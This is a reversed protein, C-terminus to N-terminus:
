PEDWSLIPRPDIKAALSKPISIKKARIYDAFGKGLIDLNTASSVGRGLIGYVVFHVAYINPFEVREIFYSGEKWDDGILTKLRSRSMYSRFWDWLQPDRVFFGANINAGKDGSRALAIDGLLLESQTEGMSAVSVPYATDYNARKGPKKYTPPHGADVISAQSGYEGLLHAKEQLQDQRMVAPYYALFPRPFATRFDLSCHMGSYHQMGFEMFSTLLQQLTSPESAQALLRFYTTSSLQSRPDSEPVGIHQFELADFQDRVKNKELAHLMQKKWLQFKHGTAYGAANFLLQSEFGGQYFIALKTTPPPPGGKIGWLRVRNLGVEEVQVDHMHATVDSNLYVEGQLEYLFQCKVTDATVLGNSREHKTVVVSGDAEVEAIGFPLDILKDLPVEDFGAFNAGTVYASCEILHGAVLSGALADWDNDAWGHWWWAAGIVPSADAVRGCIIIDGGAELAKVIGRAGLYANASVLAKGPKLLDTVNRALIVDENEADLHEPLQGSGELQRQVDALVNDGSVWAIQLHLNREEVLKQCKRALGEPNLAGGNIVIKIGKEAVVQVSQSIGDWATAAFGEHKGAAMAQANEALNVEALYDGTIFDVEGDSAQRLMQYGPDGAAGSCNAIRVARKGREELSQNLKQCPM